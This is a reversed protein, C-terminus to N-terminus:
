ELMNAVPPSDFSFDALLNDFLGKMVMQGGEVTFHAGDSAMVTLKKGSALELSDKWESDKGPFNERLSIRKVRSDSYQSAIREQVSDIYSLHGQYEENKVTPMGIWYVLSVSELAADLVTKCKLAYAAEWEATGTKVVVGEDTWFNQYDNMGLMIVAAHYEGNSFVDRIKATWDYYDSRIFGTSHVALVDVALASPKGALRSFGFGLSHVQSDGFFYLKLPSDVSFVKPAEPLAPADPASQLTLRDLSLQELGLQDLGLQDLSLPEFDHSELDISETNATSMGSIDPVTSGSTSSYYFRSDWSPHASLGTIDLFLTRIGPLLAATGLYASVAEGAHACALLIARVHPNKEQSAPIKYFPGCLPVSLLVSLLVFGLFYNPSYRDEKM